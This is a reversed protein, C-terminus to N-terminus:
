AARGRRWSCRRRRSRSRSAKTASAASAGSASRMAKTASPLSWSNARRPSLPATSPMRRSRSPPASASWHVRTAKAPLPERRATASREASIESTSTASPATTAEKSACVRSSPPSSTAVQTVESTTLASPWQSREQSELLLTWAKLRSVRWCWAASGANLTGTVATPVRGVSACATTAHASLRTNSYSRRPRQRVGHDRLCECRSGRKWMSRRSASHPM